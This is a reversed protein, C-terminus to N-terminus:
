LDSTQEGRVDPFNQGARRCNPCTNYHRKHEDLCAKCYVRGCCTVQHPTHAVLLCIQCVLKDPPTDVFKYDYGGALPVNSAM